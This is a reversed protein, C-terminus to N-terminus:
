KDSVPLRQFFSSHLCFSESNDIQIKKDQENALLWKRTETFVAENPTNNAKRSLYISVNNTIMKLFYNPIKGRQANM